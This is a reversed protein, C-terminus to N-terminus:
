FAPWPKRPCAFSSHTLHVFLLRPSSASQSSLRPAFTTVPLSILFLLCLSSSTTSPQPQPRQRQLRQLRQAAESPTTPTPKGPAAAAAPTQSKATPLHRATNDACTLHLRVLPPGDLLPASCARQERADAAHQGDWLVVSFLLVPRRVYRFM